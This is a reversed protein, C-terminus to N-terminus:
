YSSQRTYHEHVDSNLVFLNQCDDPVDGHYYRFMFISTLYVSIYTFKLINENHFVNELSERKQINFVIRLSKKDFIFLRKLTSYYTCGWVQNCNTIYHYICYNYLILLADKKLWHKAKAIMGISRSVRGSILSVHEKWNITKDIVVGLFKTGKVQDMESGDIKIELDYKKNRQKRFFRFHTKKINLSLRNVRLWTFIHKLEM